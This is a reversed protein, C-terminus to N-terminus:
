KYRRLRVEIDKLKDENVPRYRMTKEELKLIGRRGPFEIDVPSKLKIIERIADDLSPVISPRNLRGKEEPRLILYGSNSKVNDAPNLLECFYIEIHM